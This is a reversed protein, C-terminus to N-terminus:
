SCCLVKVVILTESYSVSFLLTSYSGELSSCVMPLQHLLILLSVIDFTIPIPFAFAEEREVFYDLM